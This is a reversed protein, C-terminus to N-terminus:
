RHVDFESQSTPFSPRLQDAQCLHLGCLIELLHHSTNFILFLNVKYVSKDDVLRTLHVLYMYISKHKRNGNILLLFKM